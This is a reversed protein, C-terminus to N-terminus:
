NEFHLLQKSIQCIVLFNVARTEGNGAYKTDLKGSISPFRYSYNNSIELGM